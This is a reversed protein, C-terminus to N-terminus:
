TCKKRSLEIVAAQLTLIHEQLEAHLDGRFAETSLSDQIIAIFSDVEYFSENILELDKEQFLLKLKLIKHGFQLKAETFVNEM